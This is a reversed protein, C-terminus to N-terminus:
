SSLAWQCIPDIRRRQRANATLHYHLRYVFNVVQTYLLGIAVSEDLAASSCPCSSVSHQLLYSARLSVSDICPAQGVPLTAHQLLAICTCGVLGVDDRM